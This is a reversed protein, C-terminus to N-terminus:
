LLLADGDFLAEDDFDFAESDEARYEELSLRKKANWDPKLFLNFLTEDPSLFSSWHDSKRRFFKGLRFFNLLVHSKYRKCNGFM